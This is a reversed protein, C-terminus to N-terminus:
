RRFMPAVAIVTDMERLFRARNEPDFGGYGTAISCIEMQNRGSVRLRKNGVYAGNGKEAIFMEDKIPDYVLGAVVEGKQELAISIAWHPQGHMFSHTGDLPDIIWVHD